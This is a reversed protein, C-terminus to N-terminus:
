NQMLAIVFNQGWYFRSNRHEVLADIQKPFNELGLETIENWRASGWGCVVIGHKVFIGSDQGIYMEEVDSLFSMKTPYRFEGFCGSGWLWWGGESSQAAM